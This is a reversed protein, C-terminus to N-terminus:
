MCMDQGYGPCVMSCKSSDVKHKKAPLTDACWCDSGNIAMVPKGLPVCHTSCASAAQWQENFGHVFGDLTDYCDGKVIDFADTFSPVLLAVAAALVSSFLM